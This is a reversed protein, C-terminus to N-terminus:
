GSGSRRGIRLMCCGWRGTPPHVKRKSVMQPRWFYPTQSQLAAGAYEVQSSQDSQVVGSDWVDGRNKNLLDVSSAVLIRYSDQRVGREAKLNEGVDKGCIEWSLRPASVDIGQPNQLYECRLHDVTSGAISSLTTIILAMLITTMRKM